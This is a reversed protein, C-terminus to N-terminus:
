ATQKQQLHIAVDQNAMPQGRDIIVPYGAGCAPCAADDHPFQKGCKCCCGIGMNILKPHTLYCNGKVIVRTHDNITM